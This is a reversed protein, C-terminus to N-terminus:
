KKNLFYFVPLVALQSKILVAEYFPKGDATVVLWNHM